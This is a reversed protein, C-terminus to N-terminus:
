KLEQSMVDWTKDGQKKRNAFKKIVIRIVIGAGIYCVGFIIITSSINNLIKGLFETLEPFQKAESSSVLSDVGSKGIAHCALGTLLTLIGAIFMNRGISLIGRNIDLLNILIIVGASILAVFFIILTAIKIHVLSDNITVIIMHIGHIDDNNQIENNFEKNIKDMNRELSDNVIKTMPDKMDRKLQEVRERTIHDAVVVPNDDLKLKNVIKGSIDEGLTTEMEKLYPLNYVTDATITEKELIQEYTTDVVYNTINVALEDSYSLAASLDVDNETSVSDVLARSVDAIMNEPICDVLERSYKKDDLAYILTERSLEDVMEYAGNNDMVSALDDGKLVGVSIGSLTAAGFLSFIMILGLIFGAIYRIIKM